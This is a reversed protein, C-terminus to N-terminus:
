RADRWNRIDASERYRIGKSRLLDVLELNVRQEYSLDIILRSNKQELEEARKIAEDRESELQKVYDNNQLYVNLKLEYM